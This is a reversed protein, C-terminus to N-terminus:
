IINSYNNIMKDLTFKEELVRKGNEGLKIRLDENNILMDIKEALADSDMINLVFGTINNQIVEPIGGCNFSIVPVKFMMAELAVIGFSEDEISPFVMVDFCETFKGADKIGSKVNIIEEMNNRHIYDLCIDYYVKDYVNGIIIVTIDKKNKLKNIAELLYIHGKRIEFNGIMGIIFKSNNIGLREYKKQKEEEVIKSIGNYIVQINKLYSTRELRSKMFNSVVVIQSTTNMVKKDYLYYYLKELKSQKEFDNHFVMIRNKINKRKAAELLQLCLNDAHYGGSHVMVCDISKSKLITEFQLINKKYTPYYIISHIINRIIKYLINHENNTKKFYQEKNIVNIKFFTSQIENYQKVKNNEDIAAYINKDKIRLNLGNVIEVFIKATGGEYPNSCFLLISKSM